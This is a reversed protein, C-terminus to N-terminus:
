LNNIDDDLSSADLDVEISSDDTVKVAKQLDSKTSLTGPVTETIATAKVPATLATSSSKTTKSSNKQVQWGAVGIVGIVVLAILLAIHTFGNQLHKNM